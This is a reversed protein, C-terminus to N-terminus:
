RSSARRSMLGVMNGETDHVSALWEDDGAPGFLGDADAFVVRADETVEVGAARLRRVTAALDDVRLYLMASPGAARDLLLRASGLPFFALGPPDFTAIPEVGLLDAYFASARELDVVPLAIQHVDM